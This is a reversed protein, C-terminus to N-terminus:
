MVEIQATAPSFGKLVTPGSFTGNWVVICSDCSGTFKGLAGDSRIFRIRKRVCRVERAKDIVSAHWWDARCRFPILAVVLKGKQAETAAKRVFPELLRGYPPNLWIRRGPWEQLSLSDNLYNAVLANSSDAAADLDFSFERDLPGFISDPTRWAQRDHESM